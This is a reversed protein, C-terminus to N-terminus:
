SAHQGGTVHKWTVGAAAYWATSYDVGLAHVLPGLSEGRARVARLALVDAETLKAFSHGEGHQHRRKAVCDRINEIHTGVSLHQPNCCVRNDCSHLVYLGKPIPGNAREWAFRHALWHRRGVNFAGYGRSRQVYGQWERCGTATPPGLFADFDDVTRAGKAIAVTSM